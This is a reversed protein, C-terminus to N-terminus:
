MRGKFRHPPRGPVGARVRLVHGGLPQQALEAQSLPITASTIYLDTLDPGGFACSTPHTVPLRVVADLQGEPTYRHVASGRWLAVWIFGEADVTLGDPFGHEREIRVLTRRDAVTGSALDFEFVDISRAPSDVYYMRSGDDSWDIGNSVTVDTVMTYVRGDPDLRYLSGACAREDLAMTGAWFRGAADVAGDNMRCDTREREVHAIMRMAGTRADFRAFGDRVALLLDDADTLAVAGVPQGVEYTTLARDAPARPDFHHLHGRLIDVFYLCQAAPDWIPGEGLQARVGVAVEVDRISATM